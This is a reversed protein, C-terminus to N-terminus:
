HHWSQKSLSESLTQQHQLHCLHLLRCTPAHPVVVGAVGALVAWGAIGHPGRAAAGLGGEGWHPGRGVHRLVAADGAGVKIIHGGGHM